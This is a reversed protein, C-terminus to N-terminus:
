ILQCVLLRKNAFDHDCLLQPHDELQTFSIWLYDM